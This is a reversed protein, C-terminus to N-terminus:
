LVATAARAWALACSALAALLRENALTDLGTFPTAPMVETRTPASTLAEIASGRM